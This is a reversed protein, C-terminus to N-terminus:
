SLFSIAKYKDPRTLRIKSGMPQQRVPHVAGKICKLVLCFDNYVIKLLTITLCIVSAARQWPPASSACGRAKGPASGRKSQSGPSSCGRFCATFPFLERRLTPLYPSFLRPSTLWHEPDDLLLQADFTGGLGARCTSYLLPNASGQNNSINTYVLVSNKQFHQWCSNLRLIGDPCPKSCGPTSPASSPSCGPRELGFWETIGRGAHGPTCTGACPRPAAMCLHCRTAHSPPEPPAATGAPEHLAAPLSKGQGRRHPM